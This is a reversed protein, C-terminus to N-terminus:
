PTDRDRRIDLILLFHALILKNMSSVEKLYLKHPCWKLLKIKHENFETACLAGLDPHPLIGQINGRIRFSSQMLGQVHKRTLAYFTSPVLTPNKQQKEGRNCCRRSLCSVSRSTSTFLSDLFTFHCQPLIDTYAYAQGPRSIHINCYLIFHWVNSDALFKWMTLSSSSLMVRSLSVSYHLGQGTIPTGSNNLSVGAKQWLHLQNLQTNQETVTPVRDAHCCHKNPVISFHQMCSM